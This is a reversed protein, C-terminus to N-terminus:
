SGDHQARRRAIEAFLEDFRAREKTAARLAIRAVRARSASSPAPVWSGELPEVSVGSESDFTCVFVQSTPVDLVHLVVRGADIRPGAVVTPDADEVAPELAAGPPTESREAPAEASPPAAPRSTRSAVDPSHRPARAVLVSCAAKRMVEEAVSGIVLHALGRRSHTGIAILDAALERSVDLLEDAATGFRVRPEVTAPTAVGIATARMVILQLLNDISRDLLERTVEAADPAGSVTSPHLVLVPVLRTAPVSTAHRLAEDVAFVSQDSYDVGVLITRQAEIM